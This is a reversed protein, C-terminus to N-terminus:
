PIAFVTSSNKHIDVPRGLPVFLNVVYHNVPSEPILFDEFCVRNKKVPM